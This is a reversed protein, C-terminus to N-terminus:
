DKVSIEVKFINVDFTGLANSFSCRLIVNIAKDMNRGVIRILIRRRLEESCLYAELGYAAM